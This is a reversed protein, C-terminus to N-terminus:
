VGHNRQSVQAAEPEGCRPLAVVVTTGKGLRSEIELTGGHSSVIQQSLFLGLGTGSGIAKTTFFPEFARGVHDEPMGCGTDRVSLMVMAPHHGQGDATHQEREVSGAEHRRVAIEVQGGESTAALANTLLNILVQQLQEADGWISLGAHALDRHLSVGKGVFAPQMLTEVSEVLQDVPLPVLVPKRQRTSTLLEEIIRVVRSIQSDIVGIRKVQDPTAGPDEGLAQV